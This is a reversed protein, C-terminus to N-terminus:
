FNEVINGAIEDWRDFLAENRSARSAADALYDFAGIIKQSEDQRQAAVMNRLRYAKAQDIMKNEDIWKDFSNAVMKKMTRNPANNLLNIYDREELVGSRLLEVTQLDVDAPKAAYEEDVAAIFEKRIDAVADRIKETCFKVSRYDDRAKQLKADAMSAELRTEANLGRRNNAKEAIHEADIVVAKANKLEEAADKVVKDLRRAFQNFKSM